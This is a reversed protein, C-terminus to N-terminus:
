SDLPKNAKHSISEQLILEDELKKLDTEEVLELKTKHYIAKKIRVRNLFIFFLVYPIVLLWYVYDDLSPNSWIYAPTSPEIEGNFGDNLFYISILSKTIYLYPILLVLLVKNVYSNYRKIVKLLERDLKHINM